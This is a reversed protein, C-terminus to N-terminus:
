KNKSSFKDIVDHKLLSQWDKIVEPQDGDSSMIFLGM